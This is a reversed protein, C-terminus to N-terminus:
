DLALQQVVYSPVVLAHPAATAVPGALAVQLSPAAECNLCHALDAQWDATAVPGAPAASPSPAAECDPYHAHGVVDVRTPVRGLLELDRYRRDRVLHLGADPVVVFPHVM